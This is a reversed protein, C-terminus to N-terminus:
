TKYLIGFPKKQIFFGFVFKCKLIYLLEVIYTTNGRLHTKKKKIVRWLLKLKIHLYAKGLTKMTDKGGKKKVRQM